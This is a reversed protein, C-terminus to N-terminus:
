NKAPLLVTVRSVKQALAIGKGNKRTGGTLSDDEQQESKTAVASASDAVPADNRPAEAPPTSASFIKTAANGASRSAETKITRCRAGVLGPRRGCIRPDTAVKGTAAAVYPSTIKGLWM